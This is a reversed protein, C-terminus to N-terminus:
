EMELYQAQVYGFWGDYEVAYWSDEQSFVTVATGTPLAAVKAQSTSMTSRITVNKEGDTDGKVHLVGSGVPADEGSRFILCDTRIYGEVGDYLVKTFTGGDYELIAAIRGTKAQQILKASGGEKERLSAEGSRPAYVVGVRHKDDDNEGFTLYRTPVIIEEGQLTVVSEYLGLKVLKVGAAMSNEGYQAKTWVDSLIADFDGASMDFSYGRGPFYKACYDALAQPDNAIEAPLLVMSGDQFYVIVNQQAEEAFAFRTLMMCALVIMLWKKM